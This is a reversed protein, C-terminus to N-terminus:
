IKYMKRNEEIEWWKGYNSEYAYKFVRCLEDEFTDADSVSEDVAKVLTIKDEVGLYLAYGALICCDSNLGSGNGKFKLENNVIFRQLKEQNSM